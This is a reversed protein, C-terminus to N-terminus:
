ANLIVNRIIDSNDPSWNRHHWEPQSLFACPFGKITNCVLVASGASQQLTSAILKADHGSEVYYFSFDFIAGIRDLLSKIPIARESSQNSDILIKLNMPFIKEFKAVLLLSEWFTGENAEGDGVIVHVNSIEGNLAKGLARGVSFPLGHGLSGSGFGFGKQNGLYPVHGFLKSGTMSIRSADKSDLFGFVELLAYWAFAAHGKSVIVNCPDFNCRSTESIYVGYLIEIISFCSPLHGSGSRVCYELVKLRIQKTADLDSIKKKIM